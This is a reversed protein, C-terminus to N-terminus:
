KKFKSSSPSRAGTAPGVKDSVRAAQPVNLHRFYGTEKARLPARMRMTTSKQSSIQVYVGLHSITPDFTIYMLVSLYQCFLKM